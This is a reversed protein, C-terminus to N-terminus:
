NNTKSKPKGDNTIETFIDEGKLYERWWFNKLERNLKLLDFQAVAIGLAGNIKLKNPTVTVQSVGVRFFVTQIKYLANEIKKIIKNAFAIFLSSKFIDKSVEEFVDVISSVPFIYLNGTNPEISLQMPIVKGDEDRVFNPTKYHNTRLFFIKMISRDLNEEDWITCAYILTYKDVKFALGLIPIFINEYKGPRMIFEFKTSFNGPGIRDYDFGLKKFAEKEKKENGTLLKIQPLSLEPIGIFSFKRIRGNTELENAVYKKVVPMVDTTKGPCRELDSAQTYTTFILLSLSLIVKLM